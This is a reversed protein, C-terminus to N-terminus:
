DLQSKEDQTATHEMQMVPIEHGCYNVNNKNYAQLAQTM